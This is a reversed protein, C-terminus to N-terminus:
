DYKSSLINVQVCGISFTAEDQEGRKYFLELCVLFFSFIYMLGPDLYIMLTEM